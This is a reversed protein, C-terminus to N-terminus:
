VLVKVLTAQCGLQNTADLEAFEVIGHRILEQLVGENESWTKIWTHGEPCPMEVLNVSATLQPEGDEVSTFQLAIRGNGYEGKYLTCVADCYTTKIDYAKGQITEAAQM